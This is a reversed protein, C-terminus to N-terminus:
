FAERFDLNRSYLFRNVAGQHVFANKEYAYFKDIPLWADNNFAIFFPFGNMIQTVYARQYETYVDRDIKYKLEVGIRQGGFGGAGPIVAGAISTRSKVNTFFGPERSPSICLNQCEGVAIRGMFTGNHSITIQSATISQGIDYLGPDFVGDGPANIIIDTNIILQTADTGGIGICNFQNAGSVSLPQSPVGDITGDYFPQSLIGDITGEDMPQSLVGDFIEFESYAAPISFNITLTGSNPYADVLAPSKIQDPADSYQMLDNILIKM